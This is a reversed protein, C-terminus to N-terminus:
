MRLIQFILFSNRLKKLCIRYVPVGEIEYKREDVGKSMITFGLKSSITKKIPRALRYYLNPFRAQYNVVLVRHGMRVWERAFYHVVPTWGKSIDSAPYIPTLVLIQKSESM